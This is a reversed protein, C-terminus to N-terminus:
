AFADDDDDDHDDDPIAYLQPNGDHRPHNQGVQGGGDGEDGIGHLTNDPGNWVSRNLHHPLHHHIPPPSTIGVWLMITRIM